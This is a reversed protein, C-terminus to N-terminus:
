EELKWLAKKAETEKETLPTCTVVDIFNVISEEFYAEADEKAKEETEALFEDDEMSAKIECRYIKKSM